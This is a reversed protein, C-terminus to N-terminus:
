TPERLHADGDDTRGMRELSSDGLVRRYERLTEDGRAVVNLDDRPEALIGLPQIRAPLGDLLRLEFGKSGVDRV